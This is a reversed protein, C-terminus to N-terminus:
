PLAKAIGEMASPNELSSLDGPDEGLVKARIARRLIKASRTKPLEEVFRIESPTFAKGLEDAIVKKIDARLEDTPDVGPRLICFCWVTEGKVEHPIGVAACEIVAPHEVAASEFEAPGIRKGAINLTDDSRGHLFWYGDEDISAWDGHVWVNPWRSWYTAIYRDKSGWFGRTQAPWPKTCVLEGVEGRVPKGDPDYVDMAMGLSPTGLSCSKTPIVPSQGLFCAGVETGGSLNMIPIRGGGVVDSFWKYPEPNWPEGTSGLIRLKSLDHKKVPEEGAPMLARVLTPSIGLITIGHRACMEWLRDAEPYNPAGEYMFVAAGNAHGGVMELPGMIWGMDTVWYLIEGPRTDLQYCVEEAIKVLFGGHVHVSGKPTGTTGSTYAIMCPAEPDLRPAPMEDSQSGFAEDWLADKEGLPCDDNPFRRYVFVNEVSPSEAVAEDAVAKMAVKTGRRYFGDATVLAKAEADQLRTAIAPAGFGSFIPLYIAGIKAIAYMAAVAQPVMPMYVGVADGESIGHALLGNAVRNVEASFQAYTLTVTAGDEGEWILAPDGARSSEAHRDVCNYTLNIKGGVFWLPWQPGEKADLVRDYPEFFEIGVDEIAQEWFWVVDDQSRRVLEHYDDIGVKRMLRTVNAREIYEPTPEWVYDPM